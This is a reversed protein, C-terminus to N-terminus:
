YYKNFIENIKALDFGHELMEDKRLEYMKSFIEGQTKKLLAKNFLTGTCKIQSHDNKLLKKKNVGNGLNHNYLEDIIINDYKRISDLAIRKARRLLNDLPYKNEERKFEEKNEKNKTKQNLM